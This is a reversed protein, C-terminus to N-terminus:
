KKFIKMEYQTKVIYVGKQLNSIDKSQSILSGDLNFIKVDADTIIQENVIKLNSNSNMSTKISYSGISCNGISGIATLLFDSSATFKLKIAATSALVTAQDVKVGWGAEQKFKSWDISASVGTGKAASAKYNNYETVTAEDAVGLEVAFGASSSYNLCIGKWASIDAGEQNESVINFGFGAFAYEYATGIAIDAKIGGYAEALPGFFNGYANEEVDPPFNIKSDGNNPAANDDYFYWYGATEEDSGTIVKGETDSGDWSMSTSTLAFVSLALFLISSIFKKIM